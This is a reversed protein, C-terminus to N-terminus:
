AWNHWEDDVDCNECLLPADLGLMVSIEYQRIDAHLHEPADYDFHEGCSACVTTEIM